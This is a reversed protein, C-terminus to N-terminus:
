ISKQLKRKIFFLVTAFAAVALSIVNSSIHNMNFGQKASLIYSVVVVTMFIAPLLTLYFNSRHNSLYVTAAWLMFTALVQTSWAVYLWLVNFNYQAIFYSVVFVPLIILLRNLISRQNIKLTDAIILRTSRYATDGTSIPLMVVGIIALLAGFNGLLEVTIEKVAWIANGSHANLEVNLEDISGWFSMSIAAWVLAIIGEIIMSGFFVSRGDKENKICKAMLPSQTAHFGSVAGCSITVFLFPFIPFNAADSKFNRLSDFTLEPIVHNYGFLVNGFLLVFLISVVMFILAISFFPYINGIIKDIPLLMAMFYYAFILGIWVNINWGTLGSLLEAPGTLFAVGVVILMLVTFIRIFHKVGSGLYKGVMEPYSAGNMRLSMMGSMYDHVSGIIACGLTIWVFAVPGYCAGLVAGVVPGLGAINMFQVLIARWRSMPVFDVGDESSYAPTKSDKDVVFVREIYKSYFVYSCVLLTLCVIFTIM